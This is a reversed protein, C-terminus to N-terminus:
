DRGRNDRRRRGSWSWSRGWSASAGPRVSRRSRPPPSPTAASAPGTPSASAATGSASAPAPVDSTLAASPTEATAAHSTDSLDNTVEASGPPRGSASAAVGANSTAPEPTSSPALRDPVPGARGATDAQEVPTGASGPPLHEVIPIASGSPQFVPGGWWWLGVAAVVGFATLAVLGGGIWWVAFRAPASTRQSSALVASSSPQSAVGSPALADAGSPSGPPFDPGGEAGPSTARDRAAQRGWAYLPRRGKRVARVDAQMTGADPYRADRSFALSLDVVACVERPVHPAVSALPPAPKSAMAMLLEADSEAEHVKRQALIRFATAGLAFLDVRGDIEDRRGLAQEPAMYPFTGLAAGTRTQFDGPAADLLRALGFDLVKVSGPQTVFLNDPKLDRHVIGRAHAVVLVDLVQDLVSLVESIPLTGLRVLREGLTEGLLLEMVLFVTDDGTAGHEYVQVTGPHGIRNAAIGERLFREKIDERVCMEPHLLKVAAQRGSADHAAYVAAMGGSGLVRDLMWRGGIVQGVRQAIFAEATM